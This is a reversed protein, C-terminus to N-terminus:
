PEWVWTIQRNVIGRRWDWNQIDQTKYYTTVSPQVLVIIDNISAPDTYIGSPPFHVEASLSRSRKTVTSLDQLIPGTARGIAPIEAIVASQFDDNISLNEFLSNSLINTPRNDYVYNYGITGNVPNRAISTILPQANLLINSGNQARILMNGQITDFYGSAANYKTNSLQFSGNRTNLGIINGELRVTTLGSDNDFDSTISYDDIINTPSLIWNETIGYSGNKKDYQETRAHNYGNLGLSSLNLAGSSNAVTSNYGLLNQVYTRANEWARNVLVGANYSDRGQANISHTLTYIYENDGFQLNWEESASLIYDSDDEGSLIGLLKDAECSITYRCLDYWTGEGFEISLIRPYCKLPASGDLPQFELAAGDVSFLSRLAEQKRLIAMLRKDPDTLIDIEDAPYGGTTHFVEDSDPSGKFAVLNGTIQLNFIAGLKEGGSGRQFIKNISVFPAPIIKKSNYYVPM